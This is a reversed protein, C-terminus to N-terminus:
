GGRLERREDTDLGSVLSLSLFEEAFEICSYAILELGDVGLDAEIDFVSSSRCLDDVALRLGSEYTREISARM